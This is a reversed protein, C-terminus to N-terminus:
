DDRGQDPERWHWRSLAGLWVWLGGATFGLMAMLRGGLTGTLWWTTLLLLVIVIATLAAKLLDTLSSQTPSLRAMLAYHCPEM